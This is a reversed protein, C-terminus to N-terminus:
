GVGGPKVEGLEAADIKWVGGEFVLSYESTIDIGGGGVEATAKNGLIEVNSIEIEDAGYQPETFLTEFTDCADERDSIFTQDELFKDTMVDCDGELLWTRLTDEVAAPDAGADDSVTEVTPATSAVSTGGDTSGSGDGGCGIAFAALLAM